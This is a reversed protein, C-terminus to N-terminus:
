VPIGIAWAAHELAEIVVAFYRGDFFTQDSVILILAAVITAGLAQV